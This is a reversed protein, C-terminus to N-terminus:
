STVEGAPLGLAADIESRSFYVQKGLRHVPIKGAKYYRAVTIPSVRLYAAAEMQTWLSPQAEHREQITTQNEKM